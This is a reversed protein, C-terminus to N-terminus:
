ASSPMRSQRKDRPSPSTYLLCRADGEGEGAGREGEERGLRTRSASRKVNPAFASARRAQTATPRADRADDRAPSEEGDNRRTTTTTADTTMTARRERTRERRRERDSIAATHADDDDDDDDDDDRSEFGRRTGGTLSRRDLTRSEYLQSEYVRPSLVSRAVM